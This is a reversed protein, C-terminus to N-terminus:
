WKLLSNVKLPMEMVIHMYLMETKIKSVISIGYKPTFLTLKTLSNPM